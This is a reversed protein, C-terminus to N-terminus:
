GSRKFPYCHRGRVLAITDRASVRPTEHLIRNWGINWRAVAIDDFDAPLEIRLIPAKGPSQLCAQFELVFIRVGLDFDIVGALARRRRCLLTPQAVQGGYSSRLRFRLGRVFNGIRAFVVRPSPANRAKVACLAM